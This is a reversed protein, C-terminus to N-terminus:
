RHLVVLVYKYIILELTFWKGCCGRLQYTLYQYHQVRGSCLLQVFFVTCLGLINLFITCQQKHLQQFDYSGSSFNIWIQCQMETM